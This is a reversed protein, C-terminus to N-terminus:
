KIVQITKQELNLKHHFRFETNYSRLLHLFSELKDNWNHM